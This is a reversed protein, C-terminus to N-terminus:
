RLVRADGVRKTVRQEDLHEMLALAYKRSTDFLDRVQGVTINGERRLYDKIKEVMKSYTSTTFIVASTLRILEGQELLAELVDKGVMEECEAVSPPAYPNKRFIALLQEIKKKQGTTFEVKHSPLHVVAGLEAINQRAIALNIFANFLRPSLRLKSKLEERGMGIQLLYNKHYNRLLEDARASLKEWTSRAMLLKSSSLIQTADDNPADLCIVQETHLLESLADQVVTQNLGSSKALERGEIATTREIAQLLLEAPTGHMLTELRTILEPRFRKHRRRPAPDVITGGGITLSPSPQRIIFKDRKVLPVPETLRLQIWGEEGPTIQEKDLLRVHAPIEAAGTFVDILANHKLPHPADTLYRLRADCLLTAELWKPITIVNGRRLEDKAVGTLNVAVRSGPYAVEVKHKHTQLGRIRSTLKQPLIEVEQGVRLQGDILTGTVITGFGSITFVRDIPLRPRGIDKRSEAKDLVADLTTKFEELGQGTRASVAVMPASELSTNNLTEEIDERVLELWEEDVLDIKTLAIIGTRVQLLDLIALHEQTQPMVGEDAAVVFITADIGGVGALMNKIFSEHGPVDVISIERGSPLTLWAFGLDITMEREQEERLRDPNIGTLAQILTSKGHDVHGATGVVAPKPLSDTNVRPINSQKPM